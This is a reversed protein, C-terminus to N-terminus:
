LVGLIELDEDVLMLLFLDDGYAAQHISNMSKSYVVWVQKKVLKRFRPFGRAGAIWVTMCHTGLM